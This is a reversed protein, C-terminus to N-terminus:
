FLIDTGRSSSNCITTPGNYTMFVLALDEALAAFARLFQAMVRIGKIM